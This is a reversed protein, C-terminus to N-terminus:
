ARRSRTIARIMTTDNKISWRPQYTGNLSSAGWSSLESFSIIGMNKNCDIANPICVKDKWNKGVNLSGGNNYFTNVGFSLHNVITAGIWDWSTRHLDADYGEWSSSNFPEPLGVARGETPQNLNNVRNFLYAVRHANNIAQDIKLSYKYTTEQTTGGASQFNNNVYALTGPTVARNPVM